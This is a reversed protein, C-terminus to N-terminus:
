HTLGEDHFHGSRHTGRDVHKGEPGRVGSDTCQKAIRTGKALTNNIRLPRWQLFDPAHLIDPWSELRELTLAATSMRKRGKVARAAGQAEHMKLVAVPVADNGMIAISHTVIVNVKLRVFEAAALRNSSVEAGAINSRSRASM